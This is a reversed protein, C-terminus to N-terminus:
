REKKRRKYSLRNIVKPYKQMQKPLWVKSGDDFILNDNAEYSDNRNQNFIIKESQYNDKNEEVYANIKPEFNEKSLLILDNDFHIKQFASTEIFFTTEKVFLQLFDHSFGFMGALDKTSSSTIPQNFQM